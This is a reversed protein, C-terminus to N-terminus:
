SVQFEGSPCKFWILASGKLGFVTQRCSLLTDRLIRCFRPQTLEHEVLKRNFGSRKCNKLRQVSTFVVQDGTCRHAAACTTGTM